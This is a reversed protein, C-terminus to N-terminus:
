AAVVSDARATDRKRNPAMWGEGDAYTVAEPFIAAEPVGLERVMAERVKAPVGRQHSLYKSLAAPSIEISRAFDSKLTGTLSLIAEFAEAHLILGAPRGGRNTKLPEPRQQNTM